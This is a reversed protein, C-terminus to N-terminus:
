HHNEGRSHPHARRRSGAACRARTKGAHTPILGRADDAETYALPKGRTLPSSGVSNRYLSVVDRNEGRSHPHAWTPSLIRNTSSTKGAHTPILGEREGIHRGRVRKGRTLPSSGMRRTSSPLASINEGRSHPHARYTPPADSLGSTKGAHTPILGGLPSMNRVLCPKGRTLPSSGVTHFMTLVTKVNEGRSHPHARCTASTANSSSTKGAHTPILGGPVLRARGADPKGRTLPSSGALSPTFMRGARNEGRSHPHAWTEPTTPCTTLTKGAHTPILGGEVPDALVFVQKGRTLPSSGKEAAEPTLSLPNEGRSHPHARKHKQSVRFM